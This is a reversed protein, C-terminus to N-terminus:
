PSAAEYVIRDKGADFRATGLVPGDDDQRATVTIVTQEDSPHRGAMSLQLLMGQAVAKTDTEIEPASAKSPAYHVTLLYQASRAEEVSVRSWRAQPPLSDVLKQALERAVAAQASVVEPPDGRTYAEYASAAVLLGFGIIGIKVAVSM